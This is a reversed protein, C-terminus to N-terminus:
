DPLERAAELARASYVVSPVGGLEVAVGLSEIIEQQM